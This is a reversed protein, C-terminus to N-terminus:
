QAIRPINPFPGRQGLDHQGFVTLSRVHKKIQFHNEDKSFYRNILEEPVGTLASAPYIGRRAFAVAEADVDTAFIRVNFQDLEQGLAESILIALSYAEEGTACGVSWIRIENGRARAYSIMDPLVENRLYAFLDPDRFFETVKILFANILQPYEDPHGDLYQIYGELNETDTAVIRRQLRRLITPTKYSNFDLGYRTRVEELFAELAKKEDPRTPVPVGAILDRLITGMRELNAVIDVTNPALSLPM